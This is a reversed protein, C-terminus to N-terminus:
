SFCSLMYLMFVYVRMPTTLYVCMCVFVFHMSVHYKIGRASFM